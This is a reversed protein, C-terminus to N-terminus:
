EQPAPEPEPLAVQELSEEGHVLANIFTNSFAIVPIAFLGGVIGGLTIGVTIGLIVALPHVSVAKGLLFPQLIHSELQMVLIIAGLMILAKVWGLAFLAVAVAIFGTLLAGVIPIFAGIFVLAALAPALPVQLALAAILVGVADVLAVLVTARVYAVLSQWGIRAAIDTRRRGARPMFKLVFTWIRRGDYLLFFLTFLAIALGAFFHGISTGASAATSAIASQSAKAIETIQGIWVDIQDQNIYFPAGALWALAQEVGSITQEALSSAESVIQWVILTLVGVLVLLGGVVGMAVSLGRPWGWESLKTIMPQMLAALLLAVAIPITVESFYRLVYGVGVVALGIAVARWAWGAAIQIGWPVARDFSELRATGTLPEARADALEESIASDRAAQRIKARRAEDRAEAAARNRERRRQDRSRRPDRPGSQGETGEQDLQGQAM